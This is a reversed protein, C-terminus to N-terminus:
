FLGGPVIFNIVAWLAFFAILGVVSNTIIEIAKQTQGSNDRASTYLIGGYIIGGVVAVSVGFAVFNVITLIIVIVPNTKDGAESNADKCGGYNFFTAADGCKQGSYSSDEDEKDSAGSKIGGKVGGLKKKCQTVFEKLQNTKPSNQISSCGKTKLYDGMPECLPNSKYNNRSSCLSQFDGLTYKDRDQKEKDYKACTEKIYTESGRMAQCVATVGTNHASYSATSVNPCKESSADGAETAFGCIDQAITRLGNPIYDYSAAITKSSLFFVALLSLASLFIGVVLYNHINNKHKIANYM